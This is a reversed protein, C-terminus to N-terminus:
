RWAALEHDDATSVGQSKGIAPFRSISCARGIPRSRGPQGEGQIYQSLPQLHPLLEVERGGGRRLESAM